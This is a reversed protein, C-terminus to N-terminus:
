RLKRKLNIPKLAACNRNYNQGNMAHLVYSLNNVEDAQFIFMM